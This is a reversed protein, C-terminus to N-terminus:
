CLLEGEEIVYKGENKLAINEMYERMTMDSVAYKQGCQPCQEYNLITERELRAFVPRLNVDCITCKCKSVLRYM